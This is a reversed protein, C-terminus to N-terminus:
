GQRKISNKICVNNTVIGNINDGDDTVIMKAVMVLMTVMSVSQNKYCHLFISAASYFKM